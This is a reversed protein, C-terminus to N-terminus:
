HELLGIDYKQEPLDNLSCTLCNLTIKNVGKSSLCALIHSYTCATQQM